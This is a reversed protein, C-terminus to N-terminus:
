LSPKVGGILSLAEISTPDESLMAMGRDYEEVRRCIVRVAEFSIGFEKGVRQFTRGEARRQAIARHRESPPEKMAAACGFFVCEVFRIMRAAQANPSFSEELM